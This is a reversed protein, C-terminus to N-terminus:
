IGAQNAALAALWENLAEKVAPKDDDDLPVDPNAALINGIDSAIQAAQEPTFSGAPKSEISIIGQLAQQMPGAPDSLTEKLDDKVRNRLVFFPNDWDFRNDGRDHEDSNLLVLWVWIDKFVQYNALGPVIQGVASLDMDGGSIRELYRQKSEGRLVSAIADKAFYSNVYRRRIELHDHSKHDPTANTRTNAVFDLREASGVGNWGNFANIYIRRPDNRDAWVAYMRNWCKVMDSVSMGMDLAAATDRPWDGPPAKDDPRIVSYNSSNPQDMISVHYGGSDLHAQDPVIGAGVASAYDMGNDWEAYLDREMQTSRTSM